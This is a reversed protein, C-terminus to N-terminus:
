PAPQDIRIAAGKPTLFFAVFTLDGAEADNRAIHMEGVGEVFGTGAPYVAPIPNGAEFKSMTGATIMVFVPGPHSHWGTHGGPKITYNVVRCVWEGKTQIKVKHTGGDVGVNIDIEDLAVPGAHLAPAPDLGSGPTAWADRLASGSYACVAVIGVFMLKWKMKSM